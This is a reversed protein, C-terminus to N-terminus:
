TLNAITAVCNGQFNNSNATRTRPCLGLGLACDSDSPVAWPCPSNVAIIQGAGIVFATFFCHFILANFFCHILFAIDCTSYGKYYQSNESTDM